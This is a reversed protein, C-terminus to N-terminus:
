KGRLKFNRWIFFFVTVGIWAILWDKFLLSVGMILIYWIWGTSTDVYSKGGLQLPKGNCIKNYEETGPEIIKLERKQLYLPSICSGGVYPTLCIFHYNGQRTIGLFQYYDVGGKGDDREYLTGVGYKKGRYEFQDTMKYGLKETMNM